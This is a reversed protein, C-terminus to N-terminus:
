KLAYVVAAAIGLWVIGPIGAERHGAPPAVIVPQGQMAIGNPGQVYIGGPRNVAYGDEEAYSQDHTAGSVFSLFNRVSRLQDQQEVIGARQNM